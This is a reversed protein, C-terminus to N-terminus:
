LADEGSGEELRDNRSAIISYVLCSVVGAQHSSSGAGYLFIQLESIASRGRLLTAYIVGSSM